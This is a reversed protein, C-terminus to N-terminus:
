HMLAINKVYLHSAAKGISIYGFHTSQGVALPASYTPLTLGNKLQVARWVASSDRPKFTDDYGILINNVNFPGHNTVTVDVQVYDVGNDNWQNVVSQAIEVYECRHFCGFIYGDYICSNGYGCAHPGCTYPVFGASATSVALLAFLVLFKMM